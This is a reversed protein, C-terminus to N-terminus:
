QKLEHITGMLHDSTKSTEGMNAGKNDISYMEGM